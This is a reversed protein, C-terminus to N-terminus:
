SRRRWAVVIILVITMFLNTASLAVLYCLLETQLKLLDSIQRLTEM